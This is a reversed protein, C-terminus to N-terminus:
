GAQKQSIVVAPNGGIICDAPFEGKVVSAAQVISRAGIRTGKLLIARGGIWVNDELVVPSVRINQDENCRELSNLPHGDNDMILCGSGLGVSNGLHILERCHLTCGSVAVNDGLIINARPCNTSLVVPQITGVSNSSVRSRAKFNNGIVIKSGTAKHLIPMGWFRSMAGLEVGANQWIIRTLPTTFIRDWLDSLTHQVYLLTM